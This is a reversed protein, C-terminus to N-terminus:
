LRIFNELLQIGQDHSKEPHFQVGYINERQIASVFPSEYQTTLWIDEALHPVLHYAHIFYFRDEEKINRNLAISKEAKVTNWGVHPIKYKYKEIPQMRKVEADFWGLGAVHGEESASAMLQMGLCIGLIPKKDKLVVQHLPEILNLARLQAMASGFHGVGPLIIRDARLLDEVKDSCIFDEGLAKLRMRLTHLNGMKYDLILTPM